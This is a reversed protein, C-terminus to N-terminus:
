TADDEEEIRQITEATVVERGDCVLLGNRREM